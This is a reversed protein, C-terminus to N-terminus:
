SARQIREVKIVLRVVVVICALVYFLAYCLVVWHLQKLITGVLVAPMLLGTIGLNNDVNKQFTGPKITKQGVINIFHQYILRMTLNSIGAVAGVIIFNLNYVVPFNILQKMHDAAIGSAPFVCAFAVYGGLADMFSGYSSAQKRVRAVNGDVCDLLAFFNFLVAGLVVAKREGIGMLIAAIISILVALCSVNNASFGVRIFGWSIPLSIPRLVFRVWLSDVSNKELPLSERIQSLSPFASSM